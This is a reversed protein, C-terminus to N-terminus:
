TKLWTSIVIAIIRQLLFFSANDVGKYSELLQPSKEAKTTSWSSDDSFYKLSISKIKNKSKKKQRPFIQWYM